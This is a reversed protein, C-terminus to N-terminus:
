VSQSGAGKRRTKQSEARLLDQLPFSKREKRSRQDFVGSEDNEHDRDEKGMVWAGKKRSSTCLRHDEGERLKMSATYRGETRERLHKM